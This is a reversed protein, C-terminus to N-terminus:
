LKTISLRFDSPELRSSACNDEEEEKIEDFGGKYIHQFANQITEQINQSKVKEWWLIEVLSNLIIKLNEKFIM